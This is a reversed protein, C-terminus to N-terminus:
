ARVRAIERSMRWMRIGLSTLIAGLVIAFTGIMWVMALAGVMPDILLLVGFLISLAGAVPLPWEGSLERRLRIATAISAVGGVIAWAAIFALLVVTTIAPYLVAGIGAAIGAFGEILLSGFGPMQRGAAALTLALIGDVFAYTGFLVVLVALTLGPWVLALVGFVVAAIGRLLLVRWQVAFIALM